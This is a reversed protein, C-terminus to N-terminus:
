QGEFVEELIRVEVGEEDEDRREVRPTVTPSSTAEEGGTRSSTPRIVLTVVELGLELFHLKGEGLFRMTDAAGSPESGSSDAARSARCDWRRVTRFARFQPEVTDTIRYGEEEEKLTRDAEAAVKVEVGPFLEV